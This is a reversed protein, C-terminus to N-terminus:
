SNSILTIPQGPRRASLATGLATTEEQIGGSDTLVMRSRMVLSLFPLYSLPEILHIAEATRDLLGFEQLRARTRPHVPFVITPWRAFFTTTCGKSGM